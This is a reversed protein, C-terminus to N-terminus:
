KLRNYYSKLDFKGGEKSIPIKETKNMLTLESPHMYIVRINDTRCSWASRPYNAFLLALFILFIKSLKMAKCILLSCFHDLKLLAFSHFILGGFDVAHGMSIQGCKKVAARRM